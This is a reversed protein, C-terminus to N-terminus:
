CSTTETNIKDLLQLMQTTLQEIKADKRQLLEGAAALAARCEALELAHVLNRSAHLAALDSIIGPINSATM